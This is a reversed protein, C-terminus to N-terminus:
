PVFQGGPQGEWLDRSWTSKPRVGLQQLQPGFKLVTRRYLPLNEQKLRSLEDVNFGLKHTDLNGSTFLPEFTRVQTSEQYHKLGAEPGQTRAIEAATAKDRVINPDTPKQYTGSKDYQGHTGQWQKTFDEVNQQGIATAETRRIQQTQAGRFEAVGPPERTAAVQALTMNAPQWKGYQAELTAEPTTFGRREGEAVAQSRQGKYWAQGAQAPTAFEQLQPAGVDTAYTQRTGRIVGIPAPAGEGGRFSTPEGLERGAAAALNQHQVAVGEAPAAGSRFGFSRPSAATAPSTPAESLGGGGGPTARSADMAALKLNRRDMEDYIDTTAM